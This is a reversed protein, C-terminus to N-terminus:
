LDLLAHDIVVEILARGVNRSSETIVWGNFTVIASDM